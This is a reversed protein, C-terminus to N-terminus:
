LLLFARSGGGGRAVNEFLFFLLLFAPAAALKKVSKKPGPALLPSRRLKRPHENSGGVNALAM